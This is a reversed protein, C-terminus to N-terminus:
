TVYNYKLLQMKILLIFQQLLRCTTRQVQTEFLSAQMSQNCMCLSIWLKPCERLSVYFWSLM